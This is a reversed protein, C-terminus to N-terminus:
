GLTDDRVLLQLRQRICHTKKTKLRRIRSNVTSTLPLSLPENTCSVPREYIIYAISENLENYLTVPPASRYDHCSVARAQTPYIPSRNNNTHRDIVVYHRQQQVNNNNGHQHSNNNNNNLRSRSVVPQHLQEDLLTDNSRYQREKSSTFSKSFLNNLYKGFINRESKTKTIKTTSKLNNNDHSYKVINAQGKNSIILAAYDEDCKYLNDDSQLTRHLWNDDIDINTSSGKLEHYSVTKQLVGSNTTKQAHNISQCHGNYQQPPLVTHHKSKSYSKRSNLGRDLSKSRKNKTFM